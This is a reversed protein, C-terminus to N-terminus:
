YLSYIMFFHFSSGVLVLLHWLEHFGFLGEFLKPWKLAYFLAGLTYAAGGALLYFMGESSLTDLVADFRILVTWGMLLFCGTYVLRSQLFKPLRHRFNTYIIGILAFSWIGYLLLSRWPQEVSTVLVPTYSGAIFLYISVHDLNELAIELRPSLRFREDLFHYSSSVVFVFLGGLIFALSAWFEAQGVRYASPLLYAAGVFVLVVGVFHIQAAITRLFYPHENERPKRKFLRIVVRAIPM